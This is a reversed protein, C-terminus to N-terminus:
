KKQEKTAEVNISISVEDGLLLGGSDLVKNYEIGFEKRNITTEATFAAKTNGWPDKLSGLYEVSLVIPKATGNITLIGQVRFKNKAISEVKNSTFKIEPYKEVEFFDSGRLHEDRKANNTDISTTKIKISLNSATNKADDFNFTGEFTNFRGKVLSLLHKISFEVTSHGADITYAAGHSAFPAGLIVVVLLFVNLMQKM